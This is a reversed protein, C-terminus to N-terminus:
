QLHILFTKFCNRKNRHFLRFRKRKRKSGAFFSYTPVNTDSFYLYLNLINNTVTVGEYLKAVDKYLELIDNDRQNDDLEFTGNISTKNTRETAFTFDAERDYKYKNDTGTFLLQIARLVNTKGSNNPGVISLYDPLEISQEDKITRFNKVRINKLKM